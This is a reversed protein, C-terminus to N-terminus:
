QLLRKAVAVATEKKEKDFKIMECIAKIMPAKEAINDVTLIGEISLAVLVEIQIIKNEDSGIQPLLATLRQIYKGVVTGRVAEKRGESFVASYANDEFAAWSEKVEKNM